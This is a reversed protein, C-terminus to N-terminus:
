FANKISFQFDETQDAFFRDTEQDENLPIAYSFQLLGMPSLWDIGIGYSRKLKNYDFGGDFPDGLRDYFTVGRTHFVNGVDVFMAM